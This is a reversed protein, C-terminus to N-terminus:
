GTGGEVSENRLHNRRKPCALRSDHVTVPWELPHSKKLRKVIVLIVRAETNSSQKCASRNKQDRLVGIQPAAQRRVIENPSAMPCHEKTHTNQYIKSGNGTTVM